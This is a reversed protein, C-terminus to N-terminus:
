RKRWSTDQRVLLTSAKEPEAMIEEVIKEARISQSAKILIADGSQIINQLERGARVVDDYQLINKESMGNQLATKAIQRSRVGITVLMNACSPVMVGIREHESSSYKGLELMDGIVAIKRTFGLMEKLTLLASEVAIPSSNYTDDIIVSGKIGPLVMMRGPTPTHQSLASACDQLSIGFRSAVACAAAFTYVVPLGISGEIKITTSEDKNLIDFSTGVPIDDRYIIRDNKTYFDSQNYRSYGFSRQQTERAVTKLIEDDANYIFVGDSKLADRLVLKEQVVAQPSSFYEVHVPVDPLRTMVVIDPRLWETLKSMDGPRDVGTELILVEPYDSSWLIVFLGDIVNKMWLFPNSWANPLGLISLPVGIESNFSKQSKRARTHNKLVTYIADKTATKGVSGTVAIVVPNARRLLWRAELTILYVIIKKFYNKM